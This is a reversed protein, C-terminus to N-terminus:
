PAEGFVLLTTLTQLKIGVQHSQSTETLWLFFFLIQLIKVDNKSHSSTSLYWSYGKGLIINKLM